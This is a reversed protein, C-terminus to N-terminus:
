DWSLYQNWVKLEQFLPTDCNDILNISKAKSIAGYESLDIGMSIADGLFKPGDYLYVRLSGREREKLFEAGRYEVALKYDSAYNVEELFEQTSQDVLKDGKFAKLRMGKDDMFEILVRDVAVDEEMKIELGAECAKLTLKTTMKFCSPEDFSTPIEKFYITNLLADGTLKLSPSPDKTAFFASLFFLAIIVTSLKLLKM